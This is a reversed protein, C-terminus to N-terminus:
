AKRRCVLLKNAADDRGAGLALLVRDATLLFAPFRNLFRWPGLHRNLLVHTPRLQEQALGAAGLVALYRSLPRMVNHEALAGRDSFVDTVLLLGGPVLAGALHTLAAEWRADDTVHYLVDFVNILDYPGGPVGDSVDARAFRQEPYREALRDVSVQAIDVGTYHAGRGAYFQTWYGTGCGVDLVRKGRVTAGARQLASELVEARLTYCAKNYALSLTTEGTGRLDFQESLRQEWFEQPRYSL